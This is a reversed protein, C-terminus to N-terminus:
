AAELTAARGFRNLGNNVIVVIELTRWCLIEAALIAAFAGLGLHVIGVAPRAAPGRGLRPLPSPTDRTM